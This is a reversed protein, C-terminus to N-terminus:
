LYMYVYVCKGSHRISYSDLGTFNSQSTYRTNVQVTRSFKTVKRSHMWVCFQLFAVSTQICIYYHMTSNCVRVCVCVCVCAYIYIYIYIYVYLIKVYQKSIEGSCLCYICTYNVNWTTTRAHHFDEYKQCMWMEDYPWWSTLNTSFTLKSIKRLM